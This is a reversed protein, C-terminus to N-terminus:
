GNNEEEGPQEDGNLDSTTRGELADEGRETLGMLYARAQRLQQTVQALSTGGQTNRAEVVHEPVIVEYVDEAFLASHAQFERLSLDALFKKERVCYLVLRGIVEHAQRFPLGKKALYDALDTANSFDERVAEALRERRVSLTQLMGTLVVLVDKVTDLADFLASKDEQMDKNYALPLGKMVTLIAVLDGYVRGTKGRVLEAMDPNKKQPMISSGTAYGDDMEIFGFETSSWLILEEALRSVHMMLISLVMLGEVVYDRDSVADMSNAYVGSFGLERASFELDLPFSSGALAAAGLPSYDLRRLADEIRERDRRFMGFYALLHHALRVPQARQLHTYGPILVDQCEEARHVLVALLAEVLGGIHIMERRQYLHLDVAVQDNRSRGTHLKGALPGIKEALLREVAMHIDEDAASFTATGDALEEGVATLGEVLRDREKATLVGIHTLMRVHAVSARIDDQWLRQDIAISAGFREALPDTQGEFRGGWLKM